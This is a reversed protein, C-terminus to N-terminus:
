LDQLENETKAIVCTALSNGIINTATRAMDMLEDVGLILYIPALPLNMSAAMGMLIVLSARPVGAVGKSTLMLTLLITIQQTLTLDINSAQAIFITALSLYLTTGDLNFSYGMPVVFSTIKKSCGFKELAIMLKPLAADSSTTAFAISVPEAIHQALKKINIKYYLAIPVFVLVILAILAFYLTFVLLFLNKLIGIGTHSVSYALASGVAIPACYMIIRTMGFMVETLSESFEMITRRAREPSLSVGIGFLMSFVVIQLMNNEYISKAINEPFINLMHDQFTQPQKIQIQETKTESTEPVNIGKGAQTIHIAALGIFLAITTVIEFYIFSKLGIKGLDKLNTHHAIGLVITGFILPAVISKILKLFIKSVLNLHIGFEPLFIGILLGVGMSIFIWHTLSVNRFLQHIM